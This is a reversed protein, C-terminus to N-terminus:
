VFKIYKIIYVIYIFYYMKERLNLGRFNFNYFSSYLSHLFLLFKEIEINSLYM